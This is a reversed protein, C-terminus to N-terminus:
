RADVPPLDDRLAADVFTQEAADDDLHAVRVDIRADGALEFLDAAVQQRADIGRRRCRGVSFRVSLSQRLGSIILASSIAPISLCCIWLARTSTRSSSTPVTM